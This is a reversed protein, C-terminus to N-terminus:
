RWSVKFVMSHRANVFISWSRPVGDGSDVAIVLGTGKRFIM